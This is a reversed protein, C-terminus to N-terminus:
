FARAAGVFYGLSGGSPLGGGALTWATSTSTPRRAQAGARFSDPASFVVLGMGLAVAAGGFGVSAPRGLDEPQVILLYLGGAAIALGAAVKLGGVFYYGRARRARQAAQQQAAAEALGAAVQRMLVAHTVLNSRARALEGVRPHDPYLASVQDIRKIAATAADANQSKMARQADEAAFQIDAERARVAEAERASAEAARIRRENEILAAAASQTQEREALRRTARAALEGLEADVAPDRRPLRLWAAHETQTLVDDGVAAAARVLDAQLRPPTTGLLTRVRKFTELAKPAQNAALLEEGEVVLARPDEAAWATSGLLLLAVCVRAARAVSKVQRDQVPLRARDPV